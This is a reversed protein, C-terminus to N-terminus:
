RTLKQCGTKHWHHVSRDIKTASMNAFAQGQSPDLCSTLMKQRLHQALIHSPMSQAAKQHLMYPLNAPHSLVKSEAASILKIGEDDGAAALNTGTPSYSLARVPLGFRTAVSGFEGNPLTYVQCALASTHM